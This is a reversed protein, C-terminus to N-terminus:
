QLEPFNEPRNLLWEYDSFSLGRTNRITQARAPAAWKLIFARISGEAEVFDDEYWNFLETVTLEESAVTLHRPTHLARQTNDALLTDLNAATYIQKRLPPCGTSACNVAFHVRADKWGKAKFDEGLLIGKEIGDLSVDRGGVNFMEREFVSDVFPNIRGGYDWVSSVLQGGPRDSLIKDIMFFNYANIWFAVAEERGNLRTVDFGSLIQRQERLLDDTRDDALASAYDFASVLGDDPLTREIVHQNLLAQFPSYVTESVAAQVPLVAMLLMAVFWSSCQSSLRM